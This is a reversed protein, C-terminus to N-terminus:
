SPAKWVPTRKEVFAAIGEEAEHTSATVTLLAHLMPLVDEAPKEWSEYFATRGLRMAVPPKSALVTALEDVAADLDAYAVARNVFGATVGELASMKRGTMLLELALKPPMSRRLPVSIMYPWIGRDIEPTSFVADDAAVIFDCSLALGFGGALCNGFVRAIIPKGLDWMEKMLRPMAGRGDHLEIFSGGARMGALDAGTCFAKSGAASLVVVRVEDDASARQFALALERMTLWALSNGREPRNINIRAISKNTEYTITEYTM